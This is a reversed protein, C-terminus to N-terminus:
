GHPGDHGPEVAGREWEGRGAAASRFHEPLCDQFPAVEEQGCVAAWVTAAIVPQFALCITARAEVWVIAVRGVCAPNSSLVRRAVLIQGTRGGAEM